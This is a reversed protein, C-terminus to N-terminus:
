GENCSMQRGCLTDVLSNKVGAVLMVTCMWSFIMKNENSVNGFCGSWM